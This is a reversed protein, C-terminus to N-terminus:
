PKKEETCIKERTVNITMTKDGRRINIDVDTGPEGEISEQNLILDGELIGYKDAPYGKYVTLVRFGTNQMDYSILIGIGGFWPNKGCDREKYKTKKFKTKKNKFRGTKPEELIIDITKKEIIDGRDKAPMGPQSAGKNESNGKGTGGGCGKPVGVLLLM